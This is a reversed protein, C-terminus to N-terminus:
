ISHDFLNRLMSGFGEGATSDLTELLHDALAVDDGDVARKVSSGLSEDVLNTVATVIEELKRKDRHRATTLRQSFGNKKVARNAQSTIWPSVNLVQELM